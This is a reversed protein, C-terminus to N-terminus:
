VNYIYIYNKVPNLATQEKAEEKSNGIIHHIYFYLNIMENKKICQLKQQKKQKSINM